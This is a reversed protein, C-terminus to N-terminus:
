AVSLLRAFRSLTVPHRLIGRIHVRRRLVAALVARGDRHLVHPFGLLLPASSLALLDAGDARIRVHFTPNAPGGAVEVAGPRLRVTATSGADVAELEITAPRLLSGRGPERQLNAEILRALMEAFPSPEVDAVTVTATV